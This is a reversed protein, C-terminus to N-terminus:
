QQTQRVVLIRRLQENDGAGSNNPRGKHAHAIVFDVLEQREFWGPWM